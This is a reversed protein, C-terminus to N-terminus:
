IFLASSHGDHRFLLVYLQLLLLRPGPVGEGIRPCQGQVSDIWEFEFQADGRLSVLRVDTVDDDSSHASGIGCVDFQALLQSVDDAAYSNCAPM